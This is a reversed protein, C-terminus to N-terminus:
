VLQMVVAQEVPLRVRWTHVVCQVWNYTHQIGTDTDTRSLAPPISLASEPTQQAQCCCSVAAWHVLDLPHHPEHLM